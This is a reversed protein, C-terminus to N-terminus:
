DPRRGFRRIVVGCGILTLALAAALGLNTGTFALGGSSGAPLVNGSNTTPSQQTAPPQTVPPQSLPVNNAPNGYQAQIPNAVAAGSWVLLLVAAIAGIKAVTRHM